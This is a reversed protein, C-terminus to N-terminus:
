DEVAPTLRVSGLKPARVVGRRRLAEEVIQTVSEEHRQIKTGSAFDYHHLGGLMGEHTAVSYSGRAAIPKGGISVNSVRRGIPRNLDLEWAIGSTQVLGGIRKLDDGPNLNTASQELIGLIQSGTMTLTVFKTPHPLLTYLRDRTIPGPGMSVGYGVGPMFAVQARGRERLIDGVMVDFPSESKYQRGIREPSTAIVEERAARYPADVRAVEQHMEPDAPYVDNWLELVEGRVEILRKGDLRMTLRGIMTADSLAQVIWTDGVKEPPTIRDHSHGGVILDVGQVERALKRDVASGQHSLLVIIDARRRLKPLYRRTTEIGSVFRLRETNKKSGTEGTNHYSLALVAVRVGGANFIKYPLGFVPRGNELANAGRMPFRATSQLERTRDLGYDFDHNGLAMFDYGLRNMLDIMAAGRTQNGVYDDSFTDGADLLLVNSEGERRRTEKVVGALTAFGGIRGARSFESPSRGPDGTQATADGPAVEIPTHRGHMDNTHLITIRGEKAEAGVAGVFGAIAIMGGLLGGRM